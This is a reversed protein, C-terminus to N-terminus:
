VVLQFVLGAIIAGVLGLMVYTAFVQPKVLSWVAAMAPVCSVSGAIMFALAAGSGMGQQMLGALLPPAVYGNLYAPMGIIAATAVSVIGNGGVVGAIMNSPVYTIMLAELVYAMFLWKALFMLNGWIEQLFVTRLSPQSWIKWVPARDLDPAGCGCGGLATERLPNRLLQAAIMGKIVFGGMLGLAIASIAKAIAFPWGLAAATIMLTPPDILPSALWFAMVASLPVGLALMAAIFPIVECSCFPALGGFLAAAFIMRVENGKFAAAILVEAGSAKMYAILIVAFAIYPLTSVFSSVASGTISEAEAPDFLVVLLILGISVSWPSKLWSLLRNLDVATNQNDKM